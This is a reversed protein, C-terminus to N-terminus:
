IPKDYKKNIKVLLFDLKQLVVDDCDEFWNLESNSIISRLSYEDRTMRVFLNGSCDFKFEIEVIHEKAFNSITEFIRRNM